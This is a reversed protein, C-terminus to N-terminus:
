IGSEYIEYKYQLFQMYYSTMYKLKKVLYRHIQKSHKVRMLTHKYGVYLDMLEEIYSCKSMDCKVEKLMDFFMKSM